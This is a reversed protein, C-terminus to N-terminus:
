VLDSRKRLIWEAGLLCLALALSWWHDWADLLDASL